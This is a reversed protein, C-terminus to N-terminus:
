GSEEIFGIVGALMCNVWRAMASKAAMARPAGAAAGLSMESMEASTSGTWNVPGLPFGTGCVQQMSVRLPLKFHSVLGFHGQFHYIEVVSHGECHRLRTWYSSCYRLRGRLNHIPLDFSRINTQRASALDWPYSLLQLQPNENTSRSIKTTQLKISKSDQEKTM